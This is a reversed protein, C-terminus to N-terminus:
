KDPKRRRGAQAEGAQELLYRARRFEAYRRLEDLDEPKLQKAARLLQTLKEDQEVEERPFFELISVAFFEALSQLDTLSPRYTATEWRSITNPVVHLAKALAEQSLGKGGGYGTRLDRIRGGVHELLGM